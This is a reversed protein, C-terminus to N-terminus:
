SLEKQLEDNCKDAAADLTAKGNKGSKVITSVANALTTGMTANWYSSNAHGYKNLLEVADSAPSVTLKPTKESTSIRPPVHFGYAVNWDNQVQTNTIWLEKVYAKAADLNKSKASVMEAWGGNVTAPQSQGDLAPWPFIGFDDKVASKQILPMAWLGCWQMAVQGQQFTSSDWWFTPADPLVAGTANLEYIKEYAAAMRDTNFIVQKNDPSLFDGGAAWGAIQNLADVGGDPGLYLAKHDANSLKKVIAILEDITKPVEVGAQQFMSKRYYVFTPDNIMKIGYVKGDVTFPALSSPKFDSKADVIIDDLPALLGAKVQDVSLASNEFVDPASSGLLAARVKNPYENGTGPVWSVNVKAKTYDKAYKLVAEHTGPEGYQHYWQTLVPGNGSTNGTGGTGACAALLSGGLMASGSYQLFRRRTIDSFIRQQSM